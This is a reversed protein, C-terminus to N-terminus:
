SSLFISQFILFSLHATHIHVFSVESNDEGRRTRLGVGRVKQELSSAEMELEGPTWSLGVAESEIVRGQSIPICFSLCVIAIVSSSHALVSQSWIITIISLSVALCFRALYLRGHCIHNQDLPTPPTSYSWFPSLCPYGITALITGLSYHHSLQHCGLSLICSILLPTASHICSM